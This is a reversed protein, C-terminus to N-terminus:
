RKSRERKEIESAILESLKLADVEDLHSGDYSIWGEPEVNIWFGGASEFQSIFESEQFGSTDNELQVMKATTPPRFGYVDIGLQIWRALTKLLNQVLKLSVKNEKFLGRYHDLKLEPNIPKLSSAVWGDEYYHRYYKKITYQSIYPALEEQTIPKIFDLITGFNGILWRDWSSKARAERFGSSINVGSTISLPSIGLVIVPHPSESILVKEIANLYEPTFRAVSFGFNKICRNKLTKKMREPSLNRYIRSDGGLVIDANNRWQIKQIWFQDQPVGTEFSPRFFGVVLILLLALLLTQAFRNFWKM